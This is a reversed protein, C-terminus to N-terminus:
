NDKKLLSLFFLDGQPIVTFAGNPTFQLYEVHPVTNLPSISFEKHRTFADIVATTEEPTITCVAYLLFGADHVNQAASKLISLQTDPFDNPGEIYKAEPNRRAAGLGTCPADVLVVDYPEKPPNDEVLVTADYESCRRRLIARKAANTEFATLKKTNKSFSAMALSKGGNGACYDLISEGFLVALSAIFQSNEDQVHAFRQKIVESYKSMSSTLITTDLISKRAEIKETQLMKMVHPMSSRNQNVCLSTPPRQNLFEAWDAHTKLVEAIYPSCSYRYEFPFSPGEDQAGAIALKVYTEPTPPLSRATIIQGYLKKWRVIDHIIEAIEERKTGSLGASPLIDRLCRAMNGKRFYKAVIRVAVGEDM